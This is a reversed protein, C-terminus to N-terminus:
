PAPIPLWYLSAAIVLYVAVLQLGKFWTAQGDGATTVVVLTGILLTGIELPSFALGLPAPAIVRSLLVLVPTVFLAIQISSGMAIGVALDPQNRRGMAIASGSEAAGGIVALLVMGLFVPSMGLAHGTEEAAGVLIESMWAAGASAALLTGLGRAMSWTPGAHAAHAAAQRAAFFDPHTRVMYVLYCVYTVLLVLSVGLDLRLASAPAQAGQVRHFAAPMALTVVALMLMSGYTRAGTPNYEMVHTRRGGLLFAIGLALLVNALVAGVLSARVISVLGARLAVACIMLEPLNGFTANLLGGIAPGTHEAIEETSHAILAALPVIAVAAVVFVLPAAMGLHSVVVAVPILALLWNM